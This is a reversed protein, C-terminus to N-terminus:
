PFPRGHDRLRSSLEREQSERRNAEIKAVREAMAQWAAASHLHRERVNALISAEAHHLSEEACHQYYESTNAM